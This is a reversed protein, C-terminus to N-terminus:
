SGYHLQIIHALGAPLTNEFTFVFKYINNVSSLKVSIENQSRATMTGSAVIDDQADYVKLGVISQWNITSSGVIHFKLTQSSKPRYFLTEDDYSSQFEIQFFGNGAYEPIPPFFATTKGLTLSFKGHQNNTSYTKFYYSKGKTLYLDIGYNAKDGSASALKGYYQDLVVITQDSILDSTDWFDNDDRHINDGTAIFYKGSETCNFKFIEANNQTLDVDLQYTYSQNSYLQRQGSMSIKIYGISVSKNENLGATCIVSINYKQNKTLNFGDFVWDEFWSINSKYNSLINSDEISSPRRILSIENAQSGYQERGSLEYIKETGQTVNIEVGNINEFIFAYIGSQEPIFEFNSSGSYYNNPKRHMIPLENDVEITRAQNSCNTTLNSLTSWSYSMSSIFEPTDNKFRTTDNIIDIDIVNNYIYKWGLNNNTYLYKEAVNMFDNNSGLALIDEGRKKLYAPKTNADGNPSYSFFIEKIKDKRYQANPNDIELDSYAGYSNIAKIKGDFITSDNGRVIDTSLDFLSKISTDAIVKVMREVFGSLGLETGIMPIAASVITSLACKIGSTLIFDLLSNYKSQEGNNQEAILEYYYSSYYIEKDEDFIENYNNDVIQYSSHHRPNAVFYNNKYLRTVIDTPTFYRYSLSFFPQIAFKSCDTITLPIYEIDFVVISSTYSTTSTQITNMYYGWEKGIDSKEGITYFYEKPIINVISDDASIYNNLNPGGNVYGFNYSNLESAYMSHEYYEILASDDSTDPSNNNLLKSSSTRLNGTNNKQSLYDFEANLATIISSQITKDAKDYSICSNLLTEVDDDNPIFFIKKLENNINILLEGVYKENYLTKITGFDYNQPNLIIKLATIEQNEVALVLYNCTNNKYYYFDGESLLKHFSNNSLETAIMFGNNYTQNSSFKSKSLALVNNVATKNSNFPTILSIGGIISVAIKSLLKM